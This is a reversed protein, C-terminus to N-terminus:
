LNHSNGTLTSHQQQPQDFSEQQGEEGQGDPPGESGYWEQRHETHM